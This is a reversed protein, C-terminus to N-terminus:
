YNSFQSILSLYRPHEKIPDTMSTHIVWGIWQDHELFAMDLYSLARDYDELGCLLMVIQSPPVYRKESASLINNLVLNAKDKQGLKALVYGSIFSTELGIERKLMIDYAKQYLGKESLIIAKLWLSAGHDPDLVLRDDMVKLALDLEGQFLYNMAIYLDNFSDLPDLAGAQRQLQMAKDYDGYIELIFAYYQYTLTYNPSKELAIEFYPIAKKLEYNFCHIIGMICSVKGSGPDLKEAKLAYKKVKHAAEAPSIYGRNMDFIYAEAMGIYPDVYNSDLEIAKMLYRTIDELKQGTNDRMASKGLANYKYAELNVERKEDIDKSTKDIATLGLVNFTNKSIQSSIERIESLDGSISTYNLLETDRGDIVEVNLDVNQDTIMYNGVLLIDAKLDGSIQKLPKNADRFYFTSRPSLVSLAPHLVLDSIVEEAIGEKLYAFEANDSRDEFPMVAVRYESHYAFEKNRNWQSGAWFSGALLILLATIGGGVIVINLRRNNLQRTEPIDYDTPTKRFGEPTLDYIWSFGTWFVLGITLLYILGKLIYPPADFAPLITSAIQILVWAIALYAVIARFVNRRVLEKFLKKIQM